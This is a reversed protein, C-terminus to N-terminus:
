DMIANAWTRNGSFNQKQSTQKSAKFFFCFSGYIFLLKQKACIRLSCSFFLLVPNARSIEGVSLCMRAWVGGVWLIIREKYCFFFLPSSSSLCMMMTLVLCLSLCVSLSLSFSTYCIRGATADALVSFWVCACCMGRKDRGWIDYRRDFVIGAPLSSVRTARRRARGAARGRLM